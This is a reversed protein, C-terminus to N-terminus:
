AGCPYRNSASEALKFLLAQNMAQGQAANHKFFAVEPMVFNLRDGRSIITPLARDGIIFFSRVDAYLLHPAIADALTVSGVVMGLALLVALALKRLPKNEKRCLTIALSRSTAELKTKIKLRLRM